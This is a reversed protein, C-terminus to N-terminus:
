RCVLHEPTEHARLHTYSVPPAGNRLLPLEEAVLLRAANRMDRIRHPEGIGAVVLHRGSHGIRAEIGVFVARIGVDGHELPEVLSRSEGALDLYEAGPGHEGVDEVALAAAQRDSRTRRQDIRAVLTRLALQQM